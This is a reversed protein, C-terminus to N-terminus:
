AAGAAPIMTATIQRCFLWCCFPLLPLLCATPQLLLLQQLQM